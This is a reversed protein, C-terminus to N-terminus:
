FVETDALTILQNMASQTQTVEKDLASPTFVLYSWFIMFLFVPVAVYRYRFRTMLSRRIVPAHMGSVIAQWVKESPEDDVFYGKKITLDEM